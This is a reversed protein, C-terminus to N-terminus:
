RRHYNLASELFHLVPPSDLSDLNVLLSRNRDYKLEPYMERFDAILRTQCHVSLECVQMEEDVQSLRIPTGTRPSHTSFSLQGWKLSERLEGCVPLTGAARSLERRLQKVVRRYGASQGQIFSRVEDSREIKM